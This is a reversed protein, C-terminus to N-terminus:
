NLYFLVKKIEVEAEEALAGIGGLLMKAETIAVVAMVAAYDEIVLAEMEGVVMVPTVTQEAM